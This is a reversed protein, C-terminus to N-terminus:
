KTDCAIEVELPSWAGVAGVGGGAEALLLNLSSQNSRPDVIRVIGVLAQPVANAPVEGGLCLTSAQPHFCLGKRHECSQVISSASQIQSTISHAAQYLRLIMFEDNGRHQRPLIRVKLLFDRM